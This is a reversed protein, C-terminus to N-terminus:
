LFPQIDSCVEGDGDAPEGGLGVAIRKCRGEVQSVQFFVVKGDLVIGAERPLIVVFAVIVTEVHALPLLDEVVERSRLGAQRGCRLSSVM